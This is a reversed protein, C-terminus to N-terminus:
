VNAIRLAIGAALTALQLAFAAIQKRWLTLAGRTRDEIPRGPRDLIADLRQAGEEDDEALVRFLSADISVRVAFWCEILWFIVSAFLTSRSTARGDWLCGLGAVIAGANAANAISRGSDLFSSTVACGINRSM